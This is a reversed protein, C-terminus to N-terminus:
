LIFFFQFIKFFKLFKLFEFFKFYGPGDQGPPPPSTLAPNQPALTRQVLWDLAGPTTVAHHTTLHDVYQSPPLSPLALSVSCLCCDITRM